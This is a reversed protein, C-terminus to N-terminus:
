DNILGALALLVADSIDSDDLETDFLSNIYKVIDIKLDKGKLKNQNKYGTIKRATLPMMLTSIKAVSKFRDYVLVSHRALKKLCSINQGFFCDEIVNIDLKYREIITKKVGDLQALFLDVSDLDQISHSVSIKGIYDIYLTEATTRLVAWGTNKDAVDWGMAISNPRISKEVRKAVKDIKIQKIM